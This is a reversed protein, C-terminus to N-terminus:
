KYIQIHDLKKFDPIQWNSFKAEWGEAAWCKGFHEFLLHLFLSIDYRDENVNKQQQLVKLYSWILYFSAMARWIGSACIRVDDEVEVIHCELCTRAALIEHMDQLV